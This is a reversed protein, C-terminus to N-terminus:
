KAPTTAGPKFFNNAGGDLLNFPPTRQDLILTSRDKLSEELANVQLLFIAFEPSEKFVELSKAVELDAQSKIEQAKGEATALMEAREKLATSIINTARADGEANFQQVFREREKKMREFIKQTTSEPLGIRKFGLFRVDMGYAKAFPEVNTLIESEIQPLKMENADTSIFNAFPHQGVVSHNAGRVVGELAARAREMSDGFRERFVAPDSIAWGTYVTVIINKKDATYAEDFKSELNQIRKDFKQVKQIPWPLKFKWGPEPKDPDTNISRTPKGFTTVLAIDTQRVQFSFLLSGFVLLLLAGIILTMSNRKM